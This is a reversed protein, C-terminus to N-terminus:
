GGNGGAAEGNRELGRYEMRLATGQPLVIGKGQWSGSVPPPAAEAGSATAVEIRQLFANARKDPRERSIPAGPRGAIIIQEHINLLLETIIISM